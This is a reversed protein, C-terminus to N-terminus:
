REGEEQRSLLSRLFRQVFLGYGADVTMRMYNVANVIVIVGFFPLIYHNRAIRHENRGM